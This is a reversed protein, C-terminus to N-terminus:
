AVLRNFGDWLAKDLQSASMGTIDITLLKEGLDGIYMAGPLPMSLPGWPMGNPFLAFTTCSRLKLGEVLAWNSYHWVRGRGTVFDIVRFKSPQTNSKRVLTEFRLLRLDLEDDDDLAITHPKVIQPEPKEPEPKKRGFLAVRLALFSRSNGM